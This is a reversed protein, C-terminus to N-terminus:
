NVKNLLEMFTKIIDANLNEQNGTNSLKRIDEYANQLQFFLFKESGGKPSIAACAQNVTADIELMAVTGRTKGQGYMAMLLTGKPYVALNLKKVAKKSISEITSVIHGNELEGTTVWPIGGNWYEPNNRSPTSGSSVTAVEKVQCYKWDAPFILKLNSIYGKPAEGQRIQEIRNKIEPTM